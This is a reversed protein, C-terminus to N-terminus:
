GPRFGAVNYFMFEFFVRRGLLNLFALFEASFLNFPMFNDGWYNVMFTKTQHGSIFLHYYLAFVIIWSAMVSLSRVKLRKEAVESGFWHLGITFMVLIAINSLFVALIGSIALWALTSTSKSHKLYHSYLWLLFLMVFVDTMYQKVETSYRIQLPAFAFVFLATLAIKKDGTLNRSLLYLLPLSLASCFLPFLRLAMEGPGLLNIIFKQILLFLVPAVQNRGLPGLLGAYTREMLNLALLAEDLWLGPNSFYNILRIGLGLSLVFFLLLRFSSDTGFGPIKKLFEASM